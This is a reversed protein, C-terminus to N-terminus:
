VLPADVVPSMAFVKFEVDRALEDRFAPDTIIGKALEADSRVKLWSFVKPADLCPIAPTLANILDLLESPEDM